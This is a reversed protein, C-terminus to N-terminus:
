AVVAPQRAALQEVAADAVAAAFGRLQEDSKTAAPHPVVLSHYGPCGLSDAFRAVNAIFVETILVTAPVGAREFLLADQLSCASCAGCDGLGAIVLDARGALEVVQDDEIVYGAGPKSVVEVTAIPLRQELESALYLLLDKAKAKGNDVLLLHADDPLRGRAALEVPDVAPDELDPRHVTTTTMEREQDETTL